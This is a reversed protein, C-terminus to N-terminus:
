MLALRKTLVTQPLDERHTVDTEGEALDERLERVSQHHGDVCPYLAQLALHGPRFHSVEDLYELADQHIPPSSRQSVGSSRCRTSCIFFIFNSTVFVM